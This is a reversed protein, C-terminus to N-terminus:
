SKPLYLKLKSETIFFCTPSKETDVQERQTHIAVFDVTQCRKITHKHVQMCSRRVNRALFNQKLVPNTGFRCQVCHTLPASRVVRIKTFIWHKSSSYIQSPFNQFEFSKKQTYFYKCKAIRPSFTWLKTQNTHTPKQSYLVPFHYGNKM